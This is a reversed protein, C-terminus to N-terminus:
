NSEDEGNDFDNEILNTKRDIINWEMRKYILRLEAFMEEKIEATLFIENKNLIVELWDLIEKM